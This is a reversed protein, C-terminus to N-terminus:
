SPIPTSLKIGLNIHLSHLVCIKLTFHPKSLPVCVCLSRGTLYSVVGSVEGSCSGLSAGGRVHLM